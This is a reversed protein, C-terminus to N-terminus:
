RFALPRVSEGEFVQVALTGASPEALDGIVRLFTSKGCGSPGVICCFERDKVRLDVPGVARVLGHATPFECIVGRADIRAPPEPM